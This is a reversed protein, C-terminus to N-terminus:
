YNKAERFLREEISMVMPFNRNSWDGNMLLIVGTDTEPQFFMETAVGWNGGNHGILDRGM